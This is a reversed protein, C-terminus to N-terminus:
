SRTHSPNRLIYLMFRRICEEVHKGVCQARVASRPTRLLRSRSWSNVRSSDAHKSLVDKVPKVGRCARYVCKEVSEWTRAPPEVARPVVDMQVQEHGEHQSGDGHHGFVRQQERVLFCGVAARLWRQHSVLTSRWRQRPWVCDFM